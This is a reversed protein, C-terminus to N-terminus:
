WPHVFGSDWGSIRQQIRQGTPEAGSELAGQGGLKSKKLAEIAATLQEKLQEIEAQKDPRMSLVNQEAQVKISEEILSASKAAQLRSYMLFFVWLFLIIVLGLIQREWSWQFWIGAAIVLLILIILVVAIIFNRNKLIKLLWKM